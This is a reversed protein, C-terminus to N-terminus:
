LYNFFQVAGAEVTTPLINASAGSVNKNHYLIASLDTVANAQNFDYEIGHTTNQKIGFTALPVPRTWYYDDIFYYQFKILNSQEYLIVEFTIDFQNFAGDSIDWLIVFQRNPATGITKYYVNGLSAFGVDDQIIDDWFVAIMSNPGAGGPITTNTPYSPDVGTPETFSVWGNTSVWIRSFSGGYFDFNFDIPLDISATDNDFPYTFLTTGDRADIWAYDVTVTGDSNTWMYGFNDKGGQDAFGTSVFLFILFFIGSFRKLM